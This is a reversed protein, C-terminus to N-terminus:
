SYISREKTPMDCNVLEKKPLKWRSWAFLPTFSRAGLFARIVVPALTMEASSTLCFFQGARFPFGRALGTIAIGVGEFPRGARATFSALRSIDLPANLLGGILGLRAHRPWDAIPGLTLRPRSDKRKALSNPNSHGSWGANRPAIPAPQDTGFGANPPCSNLAEM